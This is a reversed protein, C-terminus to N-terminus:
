GSGGRSAREPERGGRGNREDHDTGSSCMLADRLDVPDPLPSTRGDRARYVRCSLGVPEAGPAQVDRGNVRITPSGVFGERGAAEDTEVERLEIAAPNLGLGAMEERLRALAREWSPCGSWWLFEVTPAHPTM